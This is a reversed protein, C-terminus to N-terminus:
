CSLLTQGLVPPEPPPPLRSGAVADVGPAPLSPEAVSASGPAACSRSGVGLPLELSEPCLERRLHDGLYCSLVGTMVGLDPSVSLLKRTMSGLDPPGSPPEGMVSARRTVPFTM